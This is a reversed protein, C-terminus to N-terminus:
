QTGVIAGSPAQNGGNGRIANNGHSVVSGGAIQLGNVRNNTIVNAFLRVTPRSIASGTSVGNANESLTSNSLMAAVSTQDAALGAGAAYGSIRSRNITAATLQTLHIGNQGGGLLLVNEVGLLVNGGSPNAHIAHNNTNFVRTNTVEVRLNAATGEIAIGRGDRGTGGFNEIIVNDVIVHRANNIRIGNGVTAGAGNIVLGRLVVEVDAGNVVVGITNPSLIGGVTSSCDITVSRTITIPGFGGPDLCNIEGGTATKFYAGAFTKCPATRACPNQDDGLGSVWTRGAQAHAPSSGFVALGAALMVLRKWM